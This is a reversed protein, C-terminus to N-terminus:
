QPLDEDVELMLGRVDGQDLPVEVHAIAVVDEGGVHFTSRLVGPRDSGTVVVSYVSPDGALCFHGEADTTTSVVSAGLPSGDAAFRRLEVHAGALPSRRDVPRWGPEPSPMGGTTHVLIVGCVQPQPAAKASRVAVVPKPSSSTCGAVLGSVLMLSANMTILSLAKRTNSM